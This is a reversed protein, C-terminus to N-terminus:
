SAAWRLGTKPVAAGSREQGGQPPAAATEGQGPRRRTVRVLEQNPQPERWRRRAPPRGTASPAATATDSPPLLHTAPSTVEKRDVSDATLSPRGAIGGGTPSPNPHTAGLPERARCLCRKFSQTPSASGPKSVLHRQHKRMSCLCPSHEAQAIHCYGPQDGLFSISGWLRPGKRLAGGGRCCAGSSLCLM